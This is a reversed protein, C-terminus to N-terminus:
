SSAQRYMVVNDYNDDEPRLLPNLKHSLRWFGGHYCCTHSWLKAFKRLGTLISREVMEQKLVTKKKKKIDEQQIKVTIRETM